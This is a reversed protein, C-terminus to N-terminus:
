LRTNSGSAVAASMNMPVPAGAQPPAATVPPATVPASAAVGPVPGSGDLPPVSLEAGSSGVRAQAANLRDAYLIQRQRELRDSELRVAEELRAFSKMKEEIIRLKTEVAVAFYQETQRVEEDALKRARVAAAALGVAASAQVAAADLETGPLNRAAHPAQPAARPVGNALPQPPAGGPPPPVPPLGNPLQQQQRGDPSVQAAVVGASHGSAGEAGVLAGALQTREESPKASADVSPLAGVPRSPISANTESMIKTLAAQAAAAAVEQSVSSALFAIQAMVPNSTDAFPMPAGAFVREGSAAAAAAGGEGGSRGWKGIQDGLFSDEIPMKLFHMICQENSKTKVHDAVANWDDGFQELGELLLLVETESWVSGDYADSSAVTTLQEFDRASLMNPYRGEAFCTPCLDIDAEGICHYRMRSCDKGCADCSYVTAAAAAYVERRTAMPVEGKQGKSSTRVAASLSTPPVTKRVAPAEDFLLLKPIGSPAGAGGAGAHSPQDVLPAANWNEVGSRIGKISAHQPRTDPEIGFNILGWHELFAHVRLIACVDGALHRRASTATLYKTPAQRWSDIIFDRYTKYVNPTKSASRKSFFEPLSRKELDHIADLRFWRSQAPIRIAAAPLSEILDAASVPAGAARGNAIGAEAVATTRHVPYEVAGQGEGTDIDMGSTEQEATSDRGRDRGSDVSPTDMSINRIRRIESEAIPEANEVPSAGVIRPQSSRREKRKSKGRRSSREGGDRASSGSKKLKGSEPGDETEMADASPASSMKVRVKFGAQAQGDDGDSEGGVSAAEKDGEDGERKINIRLKLSSNANGSEAAGGLSTKARKSSQHGDGRNRQGSADGGDGDSNFSDRRRRRSAEGSEGKSKDGVKGDRDRQRERDKDRGRDREKERPRERDRDRDRNKERPRERDRDRHREREPEAEAGKRTDEDGDGGRENKGPDSRKRKKSKKSEAVMVRERNGDDANGALSPEKKKKRRRPVSSDRSNRSSSRGYAALDGRLEEAVEYDLENMWENFLETDEIWRMHVHHAGENNEPPEPDGQVDAIPIWSDYSDPHYWWHVQALPPALEITRCYDTGDTEAPTTGEPDPHVFHTAEKPDDVLSARSLVVERVNNRKVAPVTPAFFIAYTPLMKARMLNKRVLLLLDLYFKRKDPNQFDLRRLGSSAKFRLCTRLMNELAGGPAYDVFVRHPLKTFPRAQTDSGRGLAAETFLRLQGTLLSLSRPTVDVTSFGLDDESKAQISKALASFRDIIRPDEYESLSVAASKARIPPAPASGASAMAAGSYWAPACKIGVPLNPLCHLAVRLEFDCIRNARAIDIRGSPAFACPEPNTTTEERKRPRPFHM